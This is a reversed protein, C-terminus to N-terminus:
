NELADMEGVCLPTVHDVELKTGTCGCLKCVSGPAEWLGQREEETLQRRTKQPKMTTEFAKFLLTALSEGFWPLPTGTEVGFEKSFLQCLFSDAGLTHTVTSGASTKM